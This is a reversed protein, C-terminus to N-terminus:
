SFISIPSLTIFKVSHPLFEPDIKIDSRISACGDVIIGTSEVICNKLVLSRISSPLFGPKLESKNYTQFELHHLVTPQLTVQNNEFSRLKIYIIKVTPIITTISQNMENIYLRTLSPLPHLQEFSGKFSPLELRTLSAPLSDKVFFPQDYSSLCLYKLTNPLLHPKLPVNYIEIKLTELYEPLIGFELESNLDDISLYTINNHLWGPVLILPPPPDDESAGYIKILELRRVQSPIPKSAELYDYNGLIIGTIWTRSELWRKKLYRNTSLYCGSYVKNTPVRLKSLNPPITRYRFDYLTTPLVCETMRSSFNGPLTLVELTPPINSLLHDIFMSNFELYERDEDWIHRLHLERLSSPVTGIIRQDSNVECSLKHITNPLTNFNVLLVDRTGEEPAFLFFPENFDIENVIHRNPHDLFRQTDKSTTIVLKIFIHYDIKDQTSLSSYCPDCVDISDISDISITTNFCM